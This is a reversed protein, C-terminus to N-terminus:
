ELATWQTLNVRLLDLLMFAEKYRDEDAGKLSVIASDYTTKALECAKFRTNLIEFYFVSTNLALSLRLPSSPELHAEALELAESYFVGAETIFSKRRGDSTSESLYRYYDGVIKLYVVKAETDSAPVHQLLGRVLEILEFCLDELEGHVKHLLYVLPLNTSKTTPFNLDSEVSSENSEDIPTGDIMRTDQGTDEISNSGEEELMGFDKNKTKDIELDRSSIHQTENNQQVAADAATELDGNGELEGTQARDDSEQQSLSNQQAQEKEQEKEKERKQELEQEQEQQKQELEAELMNWLKRWSTRRKGVVLKYGTVLLNRESENLIKKARALERMLLRLDEFSETTEALQALYLLAEFDLHELDPLRGLRADLLNVIEYEDSEQLREPPAPATEGDLM